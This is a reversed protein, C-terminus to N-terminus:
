TVVFRVTPRGAESTLEVDAAVARLVMQGLSTEAPPWSDLTPPAGTAAVSVALGRQAAFAECVLEGGMGLELLATSAEDIALGLEDMKDYGMDVEAAAGSAVSRVVRVAEPRAPVELRFVPPTM